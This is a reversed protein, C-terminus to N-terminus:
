PTILSVSLFLSAPIVSNPRSFDYEVNKSARMGDPGAREIIEFEALWWRAFPVRTGRRVACRFDAVGIRRLLEGSGPSM